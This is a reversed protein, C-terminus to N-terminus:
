LKNPFSNIEKEYAEILEKNVAEQAKRTLFFLNEESRLNADLAFKTLKVALGFNEKTRLQMALFHLKHLIDILETEYQYIDQKSQLTASEKPTNKLNINSSHYGLLLSVVELVVAVDKNKQDLLLQNRQALFSGGMSILAGFVILLIEM